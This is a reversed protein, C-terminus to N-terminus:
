SSILSSERFSEYLNTSYQSLFNTKFIESCICIKSFTFFFEAWIAFTVIKKQGDRSDDEEGINRSSWHGM